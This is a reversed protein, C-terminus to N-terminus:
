DVCLLLHPSCRTGPRWRKGGSNVLVTNGISPSGRAGGGPRACPAHGYGSAQVTCSVPCAHGEKRFPTM